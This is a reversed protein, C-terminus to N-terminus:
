RHGGLSFGVPNPSLTKFYLLVIVVHYYAFPLKGEFYSMKLQILCLKEKSAVLYLSGYIIYM